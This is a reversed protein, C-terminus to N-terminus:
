VAVASGNKSTIFKDNNLCTEDVYSLPKHKSEISVLFRQGCQRGPCLCSSSPDGGLLDPYKFDRLMEYIESEHLYV